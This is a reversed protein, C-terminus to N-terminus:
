RHAVGADANGGLRQRAHEVHEHLGIRAVAARLAAQADAQRQHAAQDLHVAAADRRAAGAGAAAALEHHPQRERTM